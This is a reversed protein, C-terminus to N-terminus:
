VAYYEPLGSAIESGGPTRDSILPTQETSGDNTVTLSDPTTEGTNVTIILKYPSGLVTPQEFSINVHGAEIEKEFLNKVPGIGLDLPKKASSICTGVLITLMALGLFGLSLEVTVANDAVFFLLIDLGIIVVLFVVMFVFLQTQKKKAKKVCQDIRDCLEGWLAQSIVSGAKLPYSKDHEYTKSDIEIEITEVSM